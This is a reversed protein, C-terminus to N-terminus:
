KAKKKTRELYENLCGLAREIHTRQVKQTMKMFGFLLLIKRGTVIAYLVRSRTGAFSVRLEWIKGELHAAYPRPLRGKEALLEISTLFRGRTREDLSELFERAPQEGTEPLDYFIRKYM